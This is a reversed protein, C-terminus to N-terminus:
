LLRNCLVVSVFPPPVFCRGYNLHTAHGIADICEAHM